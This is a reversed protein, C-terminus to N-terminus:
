EKHGFFSVFLPEQNQIAGNTITKDIKLRNETFTEMMEDMSHKFFLNRSLPTIPTNVKGDIVKDDVKANSDFMGLWVDYADPNATCVLFKGGHTLVRSLERSATHLDALHFWVNVSLAADVSETPIPLEYANGIIFERGEKSNIEKAREVLYKSPEVGIYRADSRQVVNACGGQGAGIDLVIQPRMEEVWSVLMPYLENDRIMGRENEVSSVWEKAVKEDEFPNDERPVAEQTQPKKPIEISM